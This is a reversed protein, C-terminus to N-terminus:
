SKCDETPEASYEENVAARNDTQRLKHIRKAVKTLSSALYIFLHALWSGFITRLITWGLRGVYDPLESSWIQIGAGSSNISIMINKLDMIVVYKIKFILIEVSESFDRRNYNHMEYVRPEKILQKQILTRSNKM